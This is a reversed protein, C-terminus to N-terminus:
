CLDLCSVITGLYGDASLPHVPLGVPPLEAMVLRLTSICVVFRILTLVHLIFSAPHITVYQSEM